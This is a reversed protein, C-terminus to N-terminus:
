GARGAAPAPSAPSAFAASPTPSITAVLRDGIIEARRSAVLRDVIADSIRKTGFRWGGRPNAKTRRREFPSLKLLRLYDHRNFDVRRSM